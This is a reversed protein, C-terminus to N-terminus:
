LCLVPPANLPFFLDSQPSLLRFGFCRFGLVVMDVYFLLLISFFCRCFLIGAAANSLGKWGDIDLLPWVPRELEKGDHVGPIDCLPM